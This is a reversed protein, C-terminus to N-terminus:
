QKRHAVLTRIDRLQYVGEHGCKRCTARFADPLEEDLDHIRLVTQWAACVGGRYTQGPIAEPPDPEKPM